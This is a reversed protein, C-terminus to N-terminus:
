KFHINVLLYLYWIMSKLSIVRLKYNLWKPIVCSCQNVNALSVQLVFAKSSLLPVIDAVGMGM